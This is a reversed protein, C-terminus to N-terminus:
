QSPRRLLAHEVPEANHAVSTPLRRLPTALATHLHVISACHVATVRFICVLLPYPSITDSSCSLRLTNTLHPFLLEGSKRWHHVRGCPAGFRRRKGVWRVKMTVAPCPDSIARLFRSQLNAAGGLGQSAVCVWVITADKSLVCTLLFCCSELELICFAARVPM